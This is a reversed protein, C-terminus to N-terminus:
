AACIGFTRLSWPQGYGTEDVAARTQAQTAALTHMRTLRVEGNGGGIEGGVGHLKTGTPCELSSTAISVDASQASGATVVQLGSVPAVCTATATVSWNAAHGGEDEYATAEVTREDDTPKLGTLLVNGAGNNVRAGAGIVKKGSPCTIGSWRSKTSGAQFTFSVYQLGAPATACFAIATLSWNETTGNGDEVASVRFGSGDTLQRAATAGVEGDAGTIRTAGGLVKTGAPCLATRTKNESTSASTSTIVTLGATAAAPGISAMQVGGLVLVGVSIGTIGRRLRRGVTSTHLPKEGM